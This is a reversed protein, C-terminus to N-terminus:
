ASGKPKAAALGEETIGAMREMEKISERLEDDSMAVLQEAISPRVTVASATLRPHIFPAVKEAVAVAEDYRRARFHLRM